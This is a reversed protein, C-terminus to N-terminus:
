RGVFKAARKQSFAKMGEVRDETDFCLGFKDREYALGDSLEMEGSRNICDKAYSLALPGCKLIQKAIAFTEDFLEQDPVVKNVLGIAFAEDAKIIAGTLILEMAKGTGVLRPLRQTGGGGPIVGLTAEPFGFKANESAIRMDCALAFESGGGLAYGNMAAIYVKRSDAMKGLVATTKRSYDMAEVATMESMAAIDGGAIFSKGTGTVVVVVITSDAEIEDIAADLECLLTDTLANMTKPSDITLHAIKDDIKLRIEHYM